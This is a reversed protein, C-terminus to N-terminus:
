DNLDGYQAAIGTVIEKADGLLESSDVYNYIIFELKEQYSLFDRKLVWDIVEEPTYLKNM